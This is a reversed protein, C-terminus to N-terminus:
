PEAASIEDNPLEFALELLPEDPPRYLARYIAWWSLLRRGYRTRIAASRATRREAAALRRARAM